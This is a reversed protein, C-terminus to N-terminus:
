WGAALALALASVGAVAAVLVGALGYIQEVAGRRVTGFVGPVVGWVFAIQGAAILAIAALRLSWLASSESAAGASMAPASSWCWLGAVVLAVGLVASAQVRMTRAVDGSM